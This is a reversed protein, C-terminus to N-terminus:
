GHPERRINTAPSSPQLSFASPRAKIAQVPRPGIEQGEKQKLRPPDDAQGEPRGEQPRRAKGKQTRDQRRDQHHQGRIGREISELHTRRAPAAQRSIHRKITVAPSPVPFGRTRLREIAVGRRPQLACRPQTEVVSFRPSVFTAGGARPLPDPRVSTETGAIASPAAGGPSVRSRTLIGPTGATVSQDVRPAPASLSPAHLICTKMSM